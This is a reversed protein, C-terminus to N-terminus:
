RPQLDTDGLGDHLRHRGARDRRGHHLQGHDDPNSPSSLDVTFVATTPATASATATAGSIALLPLLNPNNITATAQGGGTAISARSAASLQVSFSKTVDYRPAAAVTVTITQQTEGPSFTLTGSAATYDAGALATGDATTYTVTTTLNSLTSLGVTFIATTPGTM